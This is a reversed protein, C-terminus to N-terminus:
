FRIFYTVCIFIKFNVEQYRENQAIIASTEEGGEAVCIGPIDLMWITDTETLNVTIERELDSESLVEKMDDRRMKMESRFLM